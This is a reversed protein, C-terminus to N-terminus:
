LETEMSAAAVAAGASEPELLESVGMGRPCPKGLNTGTTNFGVAFRVSEPIPGCLGPNPSVMAVQLHTGSLGLLDGELGANGDVQFIGLSPHNRFSTPIPGTLRNKGLDLRFLQPM